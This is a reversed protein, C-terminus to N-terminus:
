GKEGAIWYGSWIERRKNWGVNGRGSGPGARVAGAALPPRWEVGKKGTM